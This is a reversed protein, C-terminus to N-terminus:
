RKGGAEFIMTMYPEIEFEKDSSICMKMSRGEAYRPTAEYVRGRNNPMIVKLKEKNVESQFELNFEGSGRMIATHIKKVVEPQRMDDWDTEWASEVTKGDYWGHEQLGFPKWQTMTMQAPEILEFTSPDYLPKSVLSQFYRTEYEVENGNVVGFNKSLVDTFQQRYRDCPVVYKIVDGTELNYRIIYCENYEKSSDYASGRYSRHATADIAFMINGDFLNAHVSSYYMANQMYEPLSELLRRTSCNDDMLAVYSGNYYTIGSRSLWYVTGNVEVPNSIRTGELNGVLDIRYNSPSTGYLRWLRTQTFILLQTDCVVLGTIYGDSPDGIDVHGGSTDVSEDTQTWDEITRGDGPLRSWFLRRPFKTNSRHAAAFLRGYYMQMFTITYDSCEGRILVYDGESGTTIETGQRTTEVNIVANGGGSAEVSTVKLWMFANALDEEDMTAGIPEHFLYIGDLVARDIQKQTLEAYMMYLTLSTIHGDSDTGVASITRDKLLYQGSGFERCHMKPNDREDLDDGLYYVCTKGTSGDVIFDRYYWYDDINNEDVQARTYTTDGVKLAGLMGSCIVTDINNIRARVYSRGVGRILKTTTHYSASEPDEDDWDWLIDRLYHLSSPEYGGIEKYPFAQTHSTLKVYKKRLIMYDLANTFYPIPRAPPVKMSDETPVDMVLRYSGVKSSLKGGSIDVNEADYAYSVDLGNQQVSRNIGRFKSIRETITAM